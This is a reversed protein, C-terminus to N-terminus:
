AAAFDIKVGKNALDKLTHIKGPNSAPIIVVLKNKIFVQSPGVLGANGAKQMNALDASAFIDAPAGNALQQELVQSGAFNFKVTVGPHAQKYQAAIQTFSETLSAAAFVNLTLQSTTTTPSSNYNTSILVSLMISLAS